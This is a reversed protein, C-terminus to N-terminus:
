IYYWGSLIIENIGQVNANTLVSSSGNNLHFYIYQATQHVIPLWANTNFSGSYAINCAVYDGATADPSFPVSIAYINNNNPISQNYIYLNFHCINGIVTYRSNVNVLSTGYVITPTWTGEEYDDLKNASSTGGLFIGQGSTDVVISGTKARITGDSEIVMRETGGAGAANTAFVLGQGNSGSTNKASIYSYRNTSIDDNTHAAFALRVETNTTTSKNVLFAAVEPNGANTATHIQLKASPATTGIGVNGTSRQLTMVRTPTSGYSFSLQDDCLIEWTEVSDKLIISSDQGAFVSISADAGNPSTIPGAGVGFNGGTIFNEGGASFTNKINGSADRQHYAAVNAAATTFQHTAHASGNGRIFATGQVDLDPNLGSLISVTGAASISMRLASSDGDASGNYFEMIGSSGRIELDNGGLRIIGKYSDGQNLQIAPASSTKIELAEEPSTDGIGVKGDSLITFKLAGATAFNMADSSHSYGIFGRYTADSDGFYIESNGSSTDNSKLTLQVQATGGITLTETPTIGIGVKGGSATSLTLTGNHYLDVAGNPTLKLMDAGGADIFSVPLDTQTKIYTVNSSHYIDVDNGTGVRIIANDAFQLLNASTDWVANYSAGTFTVDGTTILNSSFTKAGTFTQTTSLHATDADLYASAIATGQWVGTSITGVTTVGSSDLIRSTIKTLAM